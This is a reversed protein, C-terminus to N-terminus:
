ATLAFGAPFGSKLSKELCDAVTPECQGCCTSVELRQQLCDFSWAGDDIAREIDKETVNKCICVYM